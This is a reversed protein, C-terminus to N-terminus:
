RATPTVAPHLVDDKHDEPKASVGFPLTGAIMFVCILLSLLRTFRSKM